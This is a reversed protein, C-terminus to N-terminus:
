VLEQQQDFISKYIQIQEDPADKHHLFHYDWHSLSGNLVSIGCHGYYVEELLDTKCPWLTEVLLDDLAKVCEVIEEHANHASLDGLM